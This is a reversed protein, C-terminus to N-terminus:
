RFNEVHMLDSGEHVMRTYLAQRGDPSITLGFGPSEVAAIFKSQGTTFSLFQLSALSKSSATEQAADTLYYIGEATVAFARYIVSELVKTEEGGTTPVRWLSGRTDLTKLYYYWKADASEFGVFGGQRTIQTPKGGGAPMKWIEFTGSRNSAFYLWRGDHSCSGIMDNAPDTTLRRPQGGAASVVYEEFQGEHNSDFYIYNGDASWRPSGTMPAGFSTIQVADTGDSNSIWVEQTGSRTSSYAIRRGDPSFMPNAEQRTSGIFSTIAKSALDIRAINAQTVVQAYVLRHSLASIAPYSAGEGVYALREPARSGSAAVRWLGTRSGSSSFVIDYRTSIGLWSGTELWAPSGTRWTGFTLQKPEGAPEFAPTLPLVYLNHSGLSRCFALTRGDPSFAPSGDSIAAAPPFTLQRKTGSDVTLIFISHPGTASNRDVIALSGGDPSWALHPGAMSWGPAAVETLKREPGRLPPVLLVAARQGPLTRLFAIWRGDPSWAPSFDDAADITLRLPDGSGILKVYIDRNDGKQGDWVFAVQGGDPSFAPEGEFGPFSTFPKPIAPEPSHRSFVGLWLAIMGLVASLAVYWRRQFSVWRPAQLRGALKGSRSEEQLELLALKVDGMHQARGEPHKRLCRAILKELDPPASRLPAPEERLVAALTALNSDGQFARRGTLMEYLLSGFSFIDSRPDLKKGEAQEPSMYAFTGVIAGNRTHADLTATTAFEGMEFEALKALGFDLVKVQGQENLMINTPKVDRHIIGAAHACSLADAVQAGIELAKRLPMGEQPILQDLTKGAVYEMAIFDLGADSSIDYITIINRHNLASATKAERVFRLRHSPDPLKGPHLVKVAVFRDLHLDRAKYVVGMGGEGLLEVIQYHAVTQGVLSITELLLTRIRILRIGVCYSLLLATKRPVERQPCSTGSNRGSPLLELQRTTAM